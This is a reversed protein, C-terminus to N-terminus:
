AKGPERVGPTRRGLREQGTRQLVIRLRAARPHHLPQRRLRQGDDPARRSADVGRVHVVLVALVAVHKVERADLLGVGDEHQHRAVLRLTLEEEHRFGIRATLVPLTVDERFFLRCGGAADGGHVVGALEVREPRDNERPSAEAIGFSASVSSNWVNKVARDDPRALGRQRKTRRRGRRLRQGTGVFERVPRAFAVEGRGDAVREIQERAQALHFRRM